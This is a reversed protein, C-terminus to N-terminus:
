LTSMPPPSHEAVATAPLPPKLRPSRCSKYRGQFTGSFGFCFHHRRYAFHGSPRSPPRHHHRIFLCSRRIDESFLLGEEEFEQFTVRTRWFRSFGFLRFTARGIWVIPTPCWGVWASVPPRQLALAFGAPGLLFIGDVDAPTVSSSGSCDHETAAEPLRSLSDASGNVSGKGYKSHLRVRHSVRAMAPRAGQKGRQELANSRRAIRFSAFSRAGYTAGFYSLGTLAALKWTSRSGTGRPILPLVASTLLPSCQATRSSKNPRLVLVTSAPKATYTFPAPATPRPM